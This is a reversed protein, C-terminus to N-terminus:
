EGGLGLSALHIFELIAIHVMALLVRDLLSDLPIPSSEAPMAFCAAIMLPYLAIWLVSAVIFKIKKGSMQM